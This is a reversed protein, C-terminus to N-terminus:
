HFIAYPGVQTRQVYAIMRRNGAIQNRSRRRVIRDSRQGRHPRLHGQMALRAALMLARDVFEKEAYAVSREFRAILLV